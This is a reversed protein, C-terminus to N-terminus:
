EAAEQAPPPESGEKAGNGSGGAGGSGGDGASRVEKDTLDRYYLKDDALTICLDLPCSNPLCSLCILQGPMICLM